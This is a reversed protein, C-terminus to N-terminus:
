ENDLDSLAREATDLYVQLVPVMKSAFDRIEPDAATQAEWKYEALQARHRSVVQELYSRDFAEGRLAVLRSGRLPTASAQPLEVGKRSALERLTDDAIAQDDIMELSFRRIEPRATHRMAYQGTAIKDMGDEAVRLLFEKGSTRDQRAQSVRAATAALALASIGGIWIARRFGSM